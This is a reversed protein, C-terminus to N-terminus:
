KSQEKMKKVTCTVAIHIFIAHSVHQETTYYHSVHLKHWCSRFLGMGAVLVKVTSNIIKLIWPIVNYPIHILIGMNVWFINNTELDRRITFTIKSKMNKEDSPLHINEKVVITYSTMCKVSTSDYFQNMKRDVFKSLRPCTLQDRSNLTMIMIVVQTCFTSPNFVTSSKDTSVTIHPTTSKRAAWTRTSSTDKKEPKKHM